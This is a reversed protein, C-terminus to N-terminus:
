YARARGRFEKALRGEVARPFTVTGPDGDSTYREDPNKDLYELWAASCFKTCDNEKIKDEARVRPINWRDFDEHFPSPSPRWGALFIGQFGYRGGDARAWAVKRPVAGYPYALTSTHRGVLRVVREELGGIEARVEGQSLGALSPHSMTHNGLEFGRQVLWKLGVAAQAEAMGFLDKNLYFTAVARFGPNERAVRQMIAVATDAKPWGNADLAFHGPTSDDFTLVVPHRGAPVDFRGGVFEAATIPTYGGKALRTLEDYLEKTSRDLPTEAKPVIRHYMLVPIQGLENAKVAVAGPAAGPVPGSPTVAVVPARPTRSVKAVAGAAAGARKGEPRVAPLVLGLVVACVVVVGAIKHLLPM